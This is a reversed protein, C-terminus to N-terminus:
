QLGGLKYTTNQTKGDRTLSLKALAWRNDQRKKFKFEFRTVTPQAQPQSDATSTASNSKSSCTLTAISVQTLQKKQPTNPEITHRYTEKCGNRGQFSTVRDHDTDYTLTEQSGDPYSIDTLNHLADYRYTYTNSWANKVKLLNGEPGYLFDAKAIQEPSPPAERPRTDPRTGTDPGPGPGTDAEIRAIRGSDDLELRIRNRKNGEETADRRPLNTPRPMAGRARLIQVETHGPTQLGTLRGDDIAFRLVTGDKRKLVYSDNQITPEMNHALTQSNGCARLEFRETKILELDLTSCWGFGFLGSYTSRSDYSRSVNLGDVQMDIFNTRFSAEMMNIGTPAATVPAATAARTAPANRAADAPNTVLDANAIESSILLTSPALSLLLATAALKNM